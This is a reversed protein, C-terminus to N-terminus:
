GRRASFFRSMQADIVLDHHVKVNQMQQTAWNEAAFELVPYTHRPVHRIHYTGDAKTTDWLGGDFVGLGKISVMAGELPAGTRKVTVTGTISYCPGCTPPMSFDEV